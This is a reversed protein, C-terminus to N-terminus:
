FEQELKRALETNQKGYNKGCNKCAGNVEDLTIEKGIVKSFKEAITPKLCEIMCCDTACIPFGNM